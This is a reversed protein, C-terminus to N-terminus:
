ECFSFLATSCKLLVVLLLRHELAYVVHLVRKRFLPDLFADHQSYIKKVM